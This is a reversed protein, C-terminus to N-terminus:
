YPRKPTKYSKFVGDQVKLGANAGLFVGNVPDYELHQVSWKLVGDGQPDNQPTQIYYVLVANKGAEHGMGPLTNGDAVALTPFLPLVEQSFNYCDRNVEGTRELTTDYAVVGKDKILPNRHEGIQLGAQEEGDLNTRLLNYPDLAYALSRTFYVFTELGDLMGDRDTDPNLKDGNRPVGDIPRENRIYNEECATLFDHDEDDRFNCQSVTPITEGYRLERWHFYDSFAGGNSYRNAPDFRFKKGRLELGDYRLEDRDCMGDGDSDMDVLGDECYSANLNYVLFYKMQWPKYTPKIILENFDWEANNEFNIFKGRGWDEGMKKLRAVASGGGNGYFATSVHVNEGLDVIEKVLTRLEDDNETDTPMGDSVFFVMYSSEDNPFKDMDNRIALRAATLAAKYPTSGGEGVDRIKQTAAYVKQHDATFTPTKKDGEHIYAEAGVNGEFIMLGYRYYEQKENDRVFKEINTSRKIGGPDTDDNSGSKDIVFLFKMYRKIEEPDSICFHGQSKVNVIPDEPRTLRVDSCAASLFFILLGGLGATVVRSLM